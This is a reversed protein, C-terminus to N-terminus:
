ESLIEGSKECDYGGMRKLKMQFAPNKLTAIFAKVFPLELHPKYVIFDYHELGIPIFDLHYINAVSQIGLGVDYQGNKIASAVMTHTPLEYNYGQIEQPSLNEQKLTYDLFVRTGSGRQRNIFRVDRKVLDNLSQINKPNNPKTYLGQVRGVGRILVYDQSLYKEILYQNYVGDNHLLHVPAIHCENTQMAMVGGLSGVHTSSLTMGQDRMFADIEDLLIDHSGIVTLRQDIEHLPKLLWVDATEKAEFGEKDKPVVLLGDAEVVSTTIGAGRNLPTATFTDTVKNLKVRVFETSDLSAYLRKTLQAKVINPTAYPQRLSALILPKIFFEFALYTSVPYGPVGIVPTHHITGILTPKGPKIAVGHVHVVGHKEVLSRVFDKSGASSGAGILVLDYHNVAKLVAAELLDFQDKVIEHITPQVGLDKLANELFFSNSDLIKGTSLQNADRIIEDGTPMVIVRPVQIVEITKVGGALMAAIDIPRIKHFKPIIPTKEVIDEGIPRINQYPAISKIITVANDTREVLDEIKIVADYPEVLPNGTNINIFQPKRLTIPTSETAEETDKAIVAIGDMASANYSPSSVNAIVPNYTIRNLSNKVDITTKKLPILGHNILQAQAKELPMNKLYINRKM